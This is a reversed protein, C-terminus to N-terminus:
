PLLGHPIDVDINKLNNVRAGVVSLTGPLRVARPSSEINTANEKNMM